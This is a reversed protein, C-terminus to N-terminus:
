FFSKLKSLLHRAPPKLSMGSLFCHSPHGSQVPETPGSDMSGDGWGCVDEKCLPLLATKSVSKRFFIFNHM